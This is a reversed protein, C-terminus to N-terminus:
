DSWIWRYGYLWAVAIHAPVTLVMLIALLRHLGKWGRLLTTAALASVERGSLSVVTSAVGDSMPRMAPDSVLEDLAARVARRVTRRRAGWQWMWRPVNSLVRVMGAQADLQTPASARLAERIRAKSGPATSELADLATLLGADDRQPALVHLTRGLIGTLVVIAVAVFSVLAIPTRFQFASHFLVLAGGALGTFVHMDLWVRMSGLPLHAFLRRLLYLLNLVILATGIIGYGHGWLGGPGLVRYDEHEVRDTLPLRYYELGRWAMFAVLALLVLMMLARLIRPGSAGAPNLTAESASM